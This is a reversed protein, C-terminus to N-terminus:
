LPMLVESLDRCACLKDLIRNQKRVMERSDRPNGDDYGFLHLIGHIVYLVVEETFDTGYVKSNRLAMDLSIIIEGLFRKQGFERREIRFSLVDTSGDRFAYRKNFIKMAKDDLFILELDAFPEKRIMRLIDATLSRVM